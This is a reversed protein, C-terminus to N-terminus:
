HAWVPIEMMVNSRVCKGETTIAPIFKLAEFIRVLEKGCDVCPDRIVRVEKVTSDADVDFRLLVSGNVGKDIDAQSYKLVSAILHFLAEDGESFKANRQLHYNRIRLKTKEQEEKSQPKGSPAPKTNQAFVNIILFTCFAFVISKIVM